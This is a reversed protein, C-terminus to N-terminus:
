KSPWLKKGILYILILIISTFLIVDIRFLFATVEESRVLGSLDALWIPLLSVTFVLISRYFISFFVKILLISALQIEKERERDDYRDDRITSIANQSISIASAGIPVIRFIWLAIIFTVISLSAIVITM